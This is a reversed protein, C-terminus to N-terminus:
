CNCIGALKMLRKYHWNRVTRTSLNLRAAIDKFMMRENRLSVITEAQPPTITPKRGMQMAEKAPHTLTM